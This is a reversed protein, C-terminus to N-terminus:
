AIGPHHGGCTGGDRLRQGQLSFTGELFHQPDADLLAAGAHHQLSASPLVFIIGIKDLAVFDFMTSSAESILTDAAYLYPLINYDDVPILMAHPYHTVAREYITRYADVRYQGEVFVQYRICALLLQIVSEGRGM